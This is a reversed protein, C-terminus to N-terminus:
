MGGGPSPRPPRPVRYSVKFIDLAGGGPLVRSSTFYLAGPESPDISPGLNWGGESNLEPGFRVPTSYGDKTASAGFLYMEEIDKKKRSFVVTSGDHLWTADFDDDASNLASLPKAIAWGGKALNSVFLDHMGKGGRGDSSFMLRKGDRSVSPAWEDKATNINSGLNVPRGYTGKKPDFSVYYIDDGGKGGPRNSFFYVGRGDHAFSPDFDKEASNFSVPAPRSWGDKLKVSEWLDWGGAGGEWAITGFMLRKGDPSFAIRVEPKATSIIGPAVLQPEGTIEIPANQAALPLAALTLTLVLSKM